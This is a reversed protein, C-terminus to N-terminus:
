ASEMSLMREYEANFECGILTIASIIYMWLVLAMTTGISGYLKGYNSVHRVYFGFGVTTLLWLGTALAAGPWVRSWRQPRNPGFYYLVATLTVTASFAVAYRAIRSLLEWVPAIPNLIPDVKLARLVASEVQEGFLIMASAGVIPLMALLVLMIAVGTERLFPRGRPTRYAAHFGEMLSKVVSSAAWLSLVAALALLLVPRSGKLHLSPLVLQDTGPPLVGSLFDTMYRSVFGARTAVLVAAASTLAPLFSLISSYAAGKAIRFLEDDIASFVTQRLLYPLHRLLARM